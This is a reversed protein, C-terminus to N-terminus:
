VLNRFLPLRRLLWTCAVSCGLAAAFALLEFVGPPLAAPGFGPAVLPVAKFLLNLFVPHVLYIGFSYRALLMVAPHGELPRELYRRALLFVLLSYPAMFASGVEPFWLWFLYDGRTAVGWAMGALMVALCALGVGVVRGNVQLYTFAYYGLLYYFVPCPVWVLTELDLGAAQNVTPVALTLAFLVLLAARLGREGAQAVFARLVPTILYLGLLAYIYWMHDWSRGELLALVADALMGPLAGLSLGDGSALAAFAAEMLCYALGFTALVLLMRRVYRWLKAGDMRKAPDLLLAGSMMLFVPVAWRTLAIQVATDGVARPLGLEEVSFGTVVALLTHLLVVAIAAFARMWEFACIARPTHPPPPPASPATAVAAGACGGAPPGPVAAATAPRHPHERRAAPSGAPAAHAAAAPALPRGPAGAASQPALTPM